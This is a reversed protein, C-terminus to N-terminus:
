KKVKIEYHLNMAPNKALDKQPVNRLHAVKGDCEYKFPLGSMPDNPLPEKFDTLSKPLAGNNEAAYWRLAEVIRLMALRQDLRTQAAKVKYMAPSLVRGIIEEISADEPLPKAADFLKDYSQAYPLSVYKMTEDRGIEFKKVMDLVILQEAPYKKVKVEAYGDAILSKRTAALWPEDKLRAFMWAEVKKLHEAKVEGIAALYSIKEKATAIEDEGWVRKPDLLDGLDMLIFAKEANLGKEMPVLPSPLHTYAWFLNPSGPQNLMEELPQVAQMAIAIGVLDGILTMNEDMHRALQFMSKASRVADNFRREKVEFRMRIKNWAALNRLIQLDPLLTNVGDRKLELLIGWDPTSLRAAEDLRKMPGRETYGRVADPLEELKTELWKTQNEASEKGYFYNNQEAFCKLYAHIPNGPTLEKFEPLLQYKLAPKPPLMPEIEFSILTETKEPPAQAHVRHSSLLVVSLLATAVLRSTM